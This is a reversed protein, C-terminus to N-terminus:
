FDSHKVKQLQQQYFCGKINVKNIDSLLYTTPNTLLIKEITFIETSWNPTYGKTFAGRVKTIRVRDGVQFKTNLNTQKIKNYVTNLLMQEHKQSVENPKM